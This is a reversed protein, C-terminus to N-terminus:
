KHGKMRLESVENMLEDIKKQAAEYGEVITGFDVHSIESSKLPFFGIHARGIEYDYSIRGIASCSQCVCTHGELTGAAILDNDYELATESCSDCIISRINEM